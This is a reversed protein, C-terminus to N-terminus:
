GPQTGPRVWGGSSTERRAILADHSRRLDVRKGSYPGLQALQRRYWREGISAALRAPGLYVSLIMAGGPRLIRHMEALVAAPRRLTELVGLAATGDFSEARFPLPDTADAVVFSVREAVGAQEAARRAAMAMTESLELGFTRIPPTLAGALSIPLDGIATGIDLFRDGSKLGADHALARWVVQESRVAFIAPGLRDYIWRVLAKGFYRGDTLIAFVAAVFVVGAAALLVHAPSMPM